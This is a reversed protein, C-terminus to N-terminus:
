SGQTTIQEEGDSRAGDTFAATLCGVSVFHGNLGAWSFGVPAIAM